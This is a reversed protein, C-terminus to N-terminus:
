SCPPQARIRLEQKQWHCCLPRRAHCGVRASSVRQLSEDEKVATETFVYSYYNEQAKRRALAAKRPSRGAALPLARGMCVHAKRARLVARPEKWCQPSGRPCGSPNVIKGWSLSSSKWPSLPFFIAFTAVLGPKKIWKNIWKTIISCRGHAFCNWLRPVCQPIIGVSILAWTQPYPALPCYAIFIFLLVIGQGLLFIATPFTFHLSLYSLAATPPAPFARTRSISSLQQSLKWRTGSRPLTERKDLEKGPRSHPDYRTLCTQKNWRCCQQWSETNRMVGVKSFWIGGGFFALKFFM